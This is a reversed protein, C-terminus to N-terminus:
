WRFRLPSRKWRPGVDNRDRDKPPPPPRSLQHNVAGQHLTTTPNTYGAGSLGLWQSPVADSYICPRRWSWAPNVLWCIRLKRVTGPERESWSGASELSAPRCRSTWLSRGGGTPIVSSIDVSRAIDMNSTQCAVSPPKLNSGSSLM